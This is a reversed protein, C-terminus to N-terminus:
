MYIECLGINIMFTLLKASDIFGAKCIRKVWDRQKEAHGV